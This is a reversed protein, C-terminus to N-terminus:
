QGVPRVQSLVLKPKELLKASPSCIYSSWVSKSRKAEQGLGFLWDSFFIRESWIKPPLWHTQGNLVFKGWVKREFILKPGARCKPWYIQNLYRSGLHGLGLRRAPGFSMKLHYPFHHIAWVLNIAGTPQEPSTNTWKAAMFGCIHTDPDELGRLNQAEIM